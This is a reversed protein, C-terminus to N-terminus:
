LFIKVSKQPKTLFCTVNSGEPYRIVNQLLNKALRPKGTFLLLLRSNLQLCLRESISAPVTTVSVSHSAQSLGLNIGPHLGGVQDQWGGGTTLLQEVVLVAHVLDRRSYQLGVASWCASIVAGALISSTGLGSGQPVCINHCSM